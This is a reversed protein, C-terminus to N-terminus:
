QSSTQITPETPVFDKWLDNITVTTENRLNSIWENYVKQKATSLYNSALPRNEHGLVQIIHYGMSTKVPQSIEGVKMAFAANEFETVMAGKPFWGLDGGSSKTATDTSVEAAVTEWDEGAKIRSLVKNAEDETAVLIHRAWVQDAETPVNATIATYVRQRLLQTRWYERLDAETLNYKKLSTLYEQLNAKYGELTYPTATAEPGLTVAPTATVALASTPQETPASTPIATLDETPTSTPTKTPGLAARQTLSYTPTLWVTATPAATPTGNPFFNFLKQMSEDVDAESVTVPPSLKGAQQRLIVDNVMSDLQSSAFTNADAMAAQINQTDYYAQLYSNFDGLQMAYQLIAQDYTYQQINEIRALQVQNRFENATIKENGVQAVARQGQLYNQDLIGYGIVLLVLVIAIVVGLIIWRQQKQAKESHAIHKKSLEKQSKQKAM